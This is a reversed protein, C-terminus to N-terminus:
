FFFFLANPHEEPMPELRTAEDFWASASAGKVTNAFLSVIITVNCVALILGFV